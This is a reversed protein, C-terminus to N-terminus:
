RGAVEWSAELFFLGLDGSLPYGSGYVDTSVVQFETAREVYDLRHHRARSVSISISYRGPLFPIRPVLLRFTERPHRASGEPLPQMGTNIATVRQGLSSEFILGVWGDSVEHVGDIDVEVVLKRGMGFVERPRGEGDLLRVSRIVNAGPPYPNLRASLDVSGDRCPARESGVATLYEDVVQETTGDSRLHGTDILACRGCLNAVAAMNHSVFVVTRGEGAVEGM